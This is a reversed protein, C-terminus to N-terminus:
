LKYCYEIILFLISQTKGPIESPLSDAQSTPSQSEIGPHLPVRSFLTAVWELIRAQVSSGPLSCVMPERLTPCSQTVLVCAKALSHLWETTDFRQSGMSQLRSPEEMRPIKRALTSSNTAMDKKLPDEWGLSWVWTERMAPVCKVMQAVPFSQIEDGFSKGWRNVQRLDCKKAMM